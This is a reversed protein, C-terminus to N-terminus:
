RASEESAAAAGGSHSPNLAAQRTREANVLQQNLKALREVQRSIRMHSDIAPMLKGFEDLRKTELASAIARQLSHAFMMLDANIAGVNAALPDELALAARLYEGIRQHREDNECPDRGSAVGGEVHTVEATQETEVNQTTEKRTM